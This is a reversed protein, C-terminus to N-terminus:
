HNLIMSAPGSVCKNPYTEYRKLQTMMRGKANKEQKAIEEKSLETNPLRQQNGFLIDSEINQRIKNRLAIAKREEEGPKRQEKLMKAEKVAHLGIEETQMKEFKM